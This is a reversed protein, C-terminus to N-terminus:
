AAKKWPLFYTKGMLTIGRQPFTPEFRIGIWEEHQREIIVKKWVKGFFKGAEEENGFLDYIPDFPTGTWDGRLGTKPSVKSGEFSTNTISGWNPDPSHVLHDLRQNIETEIADRQQQSLSLWAMNFENLYELSCVKYMRGDDRIERLM